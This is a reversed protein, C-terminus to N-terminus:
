QKMGHEYRTAGGEDTRSVWFGCHACCYTAWHSYASTDGTVGSPATSGIEANGMGQKCRPCRGRVARHFLESAEM